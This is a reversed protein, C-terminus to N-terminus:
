LYEDGVQFTVRGDPLRRVDTFYVARGGARASGGSPAFTANARGPYPGAVGPSQELVPKGDAVRWILLGAGPLDRDFGTATRDELLLYESGDPRLLVKYCETASGEVPSLILKQRVTPDLVAPRLWGLREKCWACLHLPKGDRGHGNAMTCWVGAGASGPSEPRAYLDPLGLLHGFEHAMLSISSMRPGGEPCLFYDRRRGRYSFSSRHPWYLAGRTTPVREGAYLFFLGDFGDLADRGDRELLRDLAETLLAYRDPDTGYEARDRGVEVYPFVRGLIRFRGSSQEQYYDNLSGYVAQGTASRGTYKGRSFLAQTWDRTTIQENHKVDPFEVPIVALRYDNREWVRATRDDWRPSSAPPGRDGGLKVRFERDKGDRRVLLPLLDGPRKDDLAMRIRDLDSVPKGDARVILDDKRLGAEEAPSNAVVGDVRAGGNADSLQVGLVARAAPASPPRGPAALTVTREVPKGQRLVTLPVADGPTRARLLGRLAAVTTPAQGAVTRVVDGAELGDRGAPSDPDVQAIVLKGGDADVQIGLYGPQGPRAPATHGVQATIATAVTRFESLDPPAAHAEAAGRSWGALLLAAALLAPRCPQM